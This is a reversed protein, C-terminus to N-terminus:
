SRQGRADWGNAYTSVVHSLVMMLRVVVLDVEIAVGGGGGGSSASIRAAVPAITVMDVLFPLTM